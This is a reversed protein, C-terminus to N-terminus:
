GVQAGCRGLSGIGAEDESLLGLFAQQLRRTGSHVETRACFARLAAMGDLDRARRFEPSEVCYHMVRLDSAHARLAGAKARAVPNDFPLKVEGDGNSANYRVDLARSRYGHRLLNVTLAIQTRYNSKTLACVMDFDAPYTRAMANALRGSMAVFGANFYPPCSRPAMFALGYGSYELGHDRAPLGLRALMAELDVGTPPQWAPWAAFEDTAASQEVLEALSGVALTDADMYLVVDADFDYMSQQHSTGAWHHQQWLSEDVWRFEAPFDRAWAMLPSNLEITADLSLTFIIKWPGPLRANRRLSRCLMEMQLAFQRNLSVPVYIATTTM